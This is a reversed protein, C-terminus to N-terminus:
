PSRFASLLGDRQTWYFMREGDETPLVFPDQPVHIGGGEPEHSGGYKLMPSSEVRFALGDSSTARYIGGMSFPSTEASFYLTTMGSPDVQAHASWVMEFCLADSTPIREGPEKTWALGDESTASLITWHFMGDQSTEGDYYMRYGGAPLRVVTPHIVAKEDLTGPGGVTLRDGSELTFNYGDMTTASRIAPRGEFDGKYYLRWGGEPLAVFAPMQGHVRTGAEMEFNRGDQSFASEINQGHHIAMRYGGAVPIAEVNAISSDSFVVGERRWDGSEDAPTAQCDPSEDTEVVCGAMMM